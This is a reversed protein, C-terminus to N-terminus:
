VLERLQQPHKVARCGKSSTDQQQQHHHHHYQEQVHHQIWHRQGPQSRSHITMCMCMASLPLVATPAHCGCSRTPTAAHCGSSTAPTWLRSVSSRSSTLQKYLLDMCTTAM